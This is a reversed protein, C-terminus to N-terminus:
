RLARVAALALVHAAPCRDDPTRRGKTSVSSECNHTVLVLGNALATAALMLDNPGILSGQVALDARLKEYEEAARDDFPLSNFQQRLEVLLRADHAQYRPPSHHLGYLLEGLVVSCLRLDAPDAQLFRQVLAGNKRRLFAIWANTDPLYIVAV